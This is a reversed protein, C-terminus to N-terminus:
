NWMSRTMLNSAMDPLGTGAQEVPMGTKDIQGQPMLGGQSPIFPGQETSMADTLDVPQAKGGGMGAQDLMKAIMTSLPDKAGYLYFAKKDEEPLRDIYAQEAEKTKISFDLLKKQSKQFEQRALDEEKKRKLEKGQLLGQTLGQFLYGLGGAM